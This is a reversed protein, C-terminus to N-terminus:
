ESITSLVKELRGILSRLGFLYNDDRADTPHVHAFDIMKVQIDDRGGMDVSTNTVDNQKDVANIDYCHNRLGDQGNCKNMPTESDCGAKNLNYEEKQANKVIGHQVQSDSDNAIGSDMKVTVSKEKEVIKGLAETEDNLSNQKESGSSNNCNLIEETNRESHNLNMPEGKADLSNNANNQTSEHYEDM